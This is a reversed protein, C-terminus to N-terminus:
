LTFSLLEVLDPLYLVSVLYFYILNLLPHFFKLLFNWLSLLLYLLHSYFLFSRYFLILIYFYRKCFNNINEQFIKSFWIIRNNCELLNSIQINFRLKKAIDIQWNSFIAILMISGFSKNLIHLFRSLIFKLLTIILMQTKHAFNLFFILRFFHRKICIFNHFDRLLLYINRITSLSFFKTM